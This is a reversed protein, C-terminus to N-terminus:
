VVKSSKSSGGSNHISAWTQFISQQMLVLVSIGPINRLELKGGLLAAQLSDLGLHQLFDHEHQMEPVYSKAVVLSPECLLDCVRMSYCMVYACLLCSGSLVFTRM